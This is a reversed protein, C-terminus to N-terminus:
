PSPLSARFLRYRGNEIQADAVIGTSASGGDLSLRDHQFVHPDPYGSMIRHKPPPTQGHVVM